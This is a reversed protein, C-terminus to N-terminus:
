GAGPRRSPAPEQVDYRPSAGRRAEHRGHEQPAAVLLAYRGIDWDWLGIEAGQVALAHREVNRLDPEDARQRLIAVAALSALRRAISVERDDPGRREAHHVALIGHVTGDTMLPCSWCSRIGHALAFERFGGWAPDSVIDAVVLADKKVTDTGWFADTSGFPIADIVTRYEAPLDPGAGYRLRGGAHDILLISCRSRESLAGFLRCIHDLVSDLADGRALAELVSEEGDVPVYCWKVGASPIKSDERGIRHDYLQQDLSATVEIWHYDAHHPRRRNNQTALPRAASAPRHDQDSPWVFDIRGHGFDLGAISGALTIWAPNRHTSPTNV